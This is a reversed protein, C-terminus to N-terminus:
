FNFFVLHINRDAQVTAVAIVDGGDCYGVESIAVRCFGIWGSVEWFEPNTDIRFSCFLYGCRASKHPFPINCFHQELLFLGKLRRELSRSLEM